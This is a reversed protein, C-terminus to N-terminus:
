LVTGSDESRPIVGHAFRREHEADRIRARLTTAASMYDVPASSSGVAGDDLLRTFFSAVLRAFSPSSGYTGSALSASVIKEQEFM